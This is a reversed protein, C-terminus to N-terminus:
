VIPLPEPMKRFLLCLSVVNYFRLPESLNGAALVRSLRLSSGLLLVIWCLCCCPIELPLSWRYCISALTLGLRLALFAVGCVVHDACLQMLILDGFGYCVPCCCYVPVVGAGYVAGWICCWLGQGLPVGAASM